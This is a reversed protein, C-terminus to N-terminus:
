YGGGEGKIIKVGKPMKVCGLGEECLYRTIRNEDHSSCEIFHVTRGEELEKLLKKGENTKFYSDSDYYYSILEDKTSFSESIYDNLDIEIQLIAKKNLDNEYKTSIIFSTSSSNTVFDVKLKM